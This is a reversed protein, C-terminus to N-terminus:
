GQTDITFRMIRMTKTEPPACKKRTAAAGYIDSLGAELVVDISCERHDFLLEM